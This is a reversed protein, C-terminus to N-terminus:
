EKAETSFGSTKKRQQLYMIKKKLLKLKNIKKVTSSPLYHRLQGALFQTQAGQLPFM